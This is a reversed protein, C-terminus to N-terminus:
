APASIRKRTPGPRTPAHARLDDASLGQLQGCGRRCFLWPLESMRAAVTRLMAQGEPTSVPGGTTVAERAARREEDDLDVVLAGTLVELAKPSIRRPTSHLVRHGDEPRLRVVAVPKGRGTCAGCYIELVVPGDEVPNM